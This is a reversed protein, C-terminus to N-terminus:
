LCSRRKGQVFKLKKMSSKLYFQEPGDFNIVLYFTRTKKTKKYHEQMNLDLCHIYRFLVVQARVGSEGTQKRRPPSLYRLRSALLLLLSLLMKLHHALRSREPEMKVIVAATM